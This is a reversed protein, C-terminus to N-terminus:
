PHDTPEEDESSELLPLLYLSEDLVLTPIMTGRRPERRTSQSRPPPPTAVVITPPPTIMPRPRANKLYRHLTEGDILLEPCLDVAINTSLTLNTLRDILDENERFPGCVLVIVSEFEELTIGLGDRWRM